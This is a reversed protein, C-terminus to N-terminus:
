MVIRDIKVGNRSSFNMPRPDVSTTLKSYVDTM